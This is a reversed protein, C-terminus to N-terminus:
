ECLKTSFSLALDYKWAMTVGAMSDEVMLYAEGFGHPQRSHWGQSKMIRPLM